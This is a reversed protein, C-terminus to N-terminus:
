VSLMSMHFAAVTPVVFNGPLHHLLGAHTLDRLARRVDDVEYPGHFEHAMEREVEQFSTPGTRGRLLLFVLLDSQVRLEERDVTQLDGSAM